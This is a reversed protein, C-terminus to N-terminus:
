SIHKRQDRIIDIEPALIKVYRDFYLLQKLLLGFESPIKLGNNETISKMNFLIANLKSDDISTADGTQISRVINTMDKFVSDLDRIFKNQDINPHTSDM